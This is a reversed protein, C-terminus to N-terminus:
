IDFLIETENYLLDNIGHFLQEYLQLIIKIGIYVYVCTHFVFAFKKVDKTTRAHLIKSIGKTEATIGCPRWARHQSFQGLRGIIESTM